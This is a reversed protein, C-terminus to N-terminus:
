KSKPKGSWVNVGDARNITGGSAVGFMEVSLSFKKKSVLGIVLRAEVTEGPSLLSDRGADITQLAGIALKSKPDRTLLVNRNLESVRLFPNLIPTSNRNTIKLNVILRSVGTLTNLPDDPSTDAWSVDAKESSVFSIEVGSGVNLGITFDAQGWTVFTNFFVPEVLEVGIRGRTTSVRPITVVSRQQNLPIKGALIEYDATGNTSFALSQQVPVFGLDNPMTWIVTYDDGAALHEGGNPSVVLINLYGGPGTPSMTHQTDAGGDNGEGKSDEYHQWRGAGATYAARTAPLADLMFGLTDSASVALRWPSTLDTDQIVVAEGIWTDHEYSTKQWGEAQNTATLLLEDLQAGRGLTARPALSSNM